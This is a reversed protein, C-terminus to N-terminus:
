ADDPEADDARDHYLCLDDSSTLSLPGEGARLLRELGVALLEVLRDRGAPSLGEGERFRTPRPEENQM